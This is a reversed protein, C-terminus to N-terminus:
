NICLSEICQTIQKTDLLNLECQYRNNLFSKLVPLRWADEQPTRSLNLKQCISGPSATWPNLGTESSILSLNRGTTSSKDRGVINALLAVEPSSSKLLKQFFRMYRSLFKHRTPLFGEALLNDGQGDLAWLM